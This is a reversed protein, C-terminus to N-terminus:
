HPLKRRVYPELAMYVLWTLTGAWMTWALIGQMVPWEDTTATHDARIVMAVATMATIVLALRFAGRRDGRGRRFNRVAMVLAPILLLGHILTGFIISTRMFAPTAPEQLPVPADWPGFVKFWNIRGRHAGAELHLAIDPQEALTGEWAKKEDVDTPASWIPRVEHFRSPDLSAERFLVNWDATAATAADEKLPPIAEFSILRGIPDLGIRTVGPQVFPPDNTDIRWGEKWAIMPHTSSRYIFHVLGPRTRAAARWR